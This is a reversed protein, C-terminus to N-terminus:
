CRLRPIFCLLPSCFGLPSPADPPSLLDAPVADCSSALIKCAFPVSFTPDVIHSDVPGHAKGPRSSLSVALTSVTRYGLREAGLEKALDAHLGYSYEALQGAAGSNWDLALFGGAKGALSCVLVRSM